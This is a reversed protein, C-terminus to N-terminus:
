GIGLDAARQARVSGANGTARADRRPRVDVEVLLPADDAAGTLAPALAARLEGAHEVRCAACGLSRALSVFDIGDIDLGPVGTRRAHGALDRLIGYGGNDLLVFRVGVHERAASWLAHMAFLASGDGMVCVVHEDPRAMKMGVAAPMAYGLGGSATAYFRGPRVIRLYRRFQPRMSPAEEVIVTEPTCVSALEHMVQTTSLGDEGRAPAPATARDPALPRPTVAHGRTLERLSLVAEITSAPDAVINMSAGSRSADGPDDTIMVMLPLAAAGSYTSYTLFSYAPAGIVVVLDAPALARALGDADSPLHGQFLPHDEPFGARPAQPATWVPCDLTEALATAAAWGRPHDLGAGAVLVPRVSARLLDALGRVAQDEPVTAVGFQGGPQLPECPEDWDGAPVSVLTPGRPPMTAVQYARRIAAPVDAARAPEQSWKVYPLALDVSRSFLYPEIALHRRDQQGCLIVVPSRNHFANVVAGMANGLGSASHLSVLAARDRGQSYGDAMGVVTGEHLGLVFRFDAPFGDLFGLETSGPNGFVTTLDLARLLDHTVERVNRSPATNASM